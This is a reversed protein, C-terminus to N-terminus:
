VLDNGPDVYVVTIVAVIAGVSGSITVTRWAGSPWLGARAPGNGGGTAAIMASGSFRHELTVVM